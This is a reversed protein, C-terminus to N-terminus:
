VVSKRDLLVLNIGQLVFFAKLRTDFSYYAEWEKFLPTYERKAKKQSTGIESGCHVCLTADLPLDGRCEPCKKLGTGPVAYPSTEDGDREIEDGELLNPGTPEDPEFNPRLDAANTNPKAKRSPVPKATPKATPKAGRERPPLPAPPSPSM